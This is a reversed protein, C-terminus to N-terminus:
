PIFQPYQKGIDSLQLLLEKFLFGDTQQPVPIKPHIFIQLKLVVGYVLLLFTNYPNNSKFVGIV